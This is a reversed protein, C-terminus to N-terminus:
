AGSYAHLIEKYKETLLNKELFTFVEEILKYKNDIKHLAIESFRKVMLDSEWEPKEALLCFAAVSEEVEGVCEFPKHGSVGILEDFGKIQNVDNLLNTGFIKLLEDKEMFPALSLFVFRCKDCELCWRDTRREEHIRFAANCSTFVRHYKKEKSFLRTIGLESFPRLLSFYNLNSLVHTKFYGSVDMEFELSKSYQHNVVFGDVILNGVSASRENSMAINDFGYLVASCALICAIIASIPVHGNLAGQKNLEFLVPSLKRTVVIHPLGSVSVVEKIPRPNGVSFLVIEEGAKKLAEISVVSDKGGGVPVATKSPLKYSSAEPISNKSFPFIIKERLDLNNRYAFEGLGNIYLKEMFRATEPTIEQNEIIIEPPIAAKYYSAGAVLHLCKLCKDLADRKEQNLPEAPSGFTLEETFYYNDDFAYNLRATFTNEDFEYSVFRFRKVSSPEFM